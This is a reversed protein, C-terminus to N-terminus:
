LCWPLGFKRWVSFHSPLLQLVQVKGLQLIVILPLDNPNELYLYLPATLMVLGFGPIESPNKANIMGSSLVVCCSARPTTEAQKVKHINPM